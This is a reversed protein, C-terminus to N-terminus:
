MESTSALPKVIRVVSGTVEPVINLQCERAEGAAWSVTWSHGLGDGEDRGRSWGLGGGTSLLGGAVSGLLSEDAVGGESSDARPDVTWYPGFTHGSEGAPKTEGYKKYM